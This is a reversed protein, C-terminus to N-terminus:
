FHYGITYNISWINSTNLGYGPIYAPFVEGSVDTGLLNKDRVTWGMFINKIIEVRVGAVIEYWVKTSVQNKYDVTETGGWYGDTIQLNTVDYAFHSMGIRVGALFLNSTPKSDKKKKMMNMDIGFRGFLGNTKFEANATSFKNAGAVGLEFVPYYKKKLDFQIGGEMSYSDGLKLATTALSAVDVQVTFGNFFRVEPEKPEEKKKQEPGQKKQEQGQKEPAPVNKEQAHVPYMALCVLLSIIYKYISQM